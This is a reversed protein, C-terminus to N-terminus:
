SIDLWVSQHGNFVLDKGSSLVEKSKLDIVDKTVGCAKLELADMKQPEESFNNLVLIKQHAFARMYGFLHPNEIHVVEMGGNQLAPLTKRLSFLKVMEHFFRWELTDQDTLDERANWRKRSRHVWRSDSAKGPDTLYTYDNLMGWEDGIYLLPIGGISVLISRLLNIRRVAQEILESDQKELADELGALSSLTGSIRVDGTDANIQFPVGKAFSGPYEGTYFENLFRRHGVPDIGINRADQDDFTWGIDDHCRVFNVWTCGSPTPYRNRMSHELLNVNRTALAEWLLAMLLPNYSLQCEDPHIYRIVEDPHVIAESKFLLCPAVIKAMANFARIITHAEPQNECNTGLRKWIFAVADLRLVEVGQNALFLMEEAMARFVEPNSYNLDWQFSNFTTWVWRKMDECWTFSGKRITPFIERLYKQFQDPLERGPFTHYYALFDPDKAKAKRAWMHDDSTHNFVFDLVLSIGQNRLASALKRLEEMTGIDPNIARYDSVAYGGDNDEKPVAFLPMLHLYNIGLKKFYSIHDDLKALNDSFLDVYLVGGVVNESLFWLPDAERKEDLLKLEAPRQLWYHVLTNLIRELTYFFDYQWGYLQHLDAFLREWERHLREKFKHWEHSAPGPEVAFTKEVEPLIRNLSKRAQEPRWDYEAMM